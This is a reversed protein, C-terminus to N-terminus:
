VLVYVMHEVLVEMLMMREKRDVLVFCGARSLRQCVRTGLARRMLRKARGTRVHM